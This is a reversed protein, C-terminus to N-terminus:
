SHAGGRRARIRQGHQPVHSARGSDLLERVSVVSGKQNCRSNAARHQFPAQRRQRPLDGQQGQDKGLCAAEETDEGCNLM